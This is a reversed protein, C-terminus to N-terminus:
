GGRVKSVGNPRSKLSITLVLSFNRTQVRTIIQLECSKMIHWMWRTPYFVGWNMNATFSLISEHSKLMNWRHEICKLNLLFKHLNLQKKFSQQRGLKEAILSKWVLYRLEYWCSYVSGFIM